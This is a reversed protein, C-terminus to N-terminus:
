ENVTTTNLTELISLTLDVSSLATASAFIADYNELVIKGIAINTVDNAPINFNKVINYYPKAPVNVGGNGSIGLTITQTNSTTNSALITLMIAATDVPASYVQTLTSGLTTSTRVFHNLPVTAM